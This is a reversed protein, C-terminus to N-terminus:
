STSIIYMNEKQIDIGKIFTWIKKTNVMKDIDCLIYCPHYVTNLLLLLMHTIIM